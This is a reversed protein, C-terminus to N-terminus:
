PHEVDGAIEANRSIHRYQVPHLVSLFIDLETRARVEIRANGHQTRQRLQVLEKRNAEHSASGALFRAEVAGGWQAQAVMGKQRWTAIRRDLRAGAGLDTREVVRALVDVGADINGPARAEIEEDEILRPGVDLDRDDSHDNRSQPMEIATECRASKVINRHFESQSIPRKQFVFESRKEGM